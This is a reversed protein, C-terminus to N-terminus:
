LEVQMGLEVVRDPPIKFFSTARLANRSMLVFLRERWIAMGPRKTALLTETGLFYTTDEPEVPRGALSIQSLAVPIDPEEMFGYSVTVRFFAHQLLEVQLQDESSVHPVESTVVTLLIVREHLVKNHELNHLLTPPVGQRNSTMFVATGAVRHPPRAALENLFTDLPYLRALIRSALLSRGKKWTSLAAYLLAGVALPFWGGQAIKIVNAGFFGFEIVLFFMALSGAIWPNVGWSSRAVLYALMTTIIMTSTVAIGYAAAIASSSGFAVVLGITAFMLAWNVQPIYIQGREKVSTHEIDLRPCYGLQVAQRTLSFVGSILAQSAIVAAMTALAVLPYLAWSPAMLYFPSSAAEPHELLLAGQGLYNLLLAPFVLTFWALRIPRRGFHGMDAYLAEGGTVVLFVSGLVVFGHWGNRILFNLGFAPNFATLVSPNSLIWSIGMTALATFWCIMIPGFMAGVKHTGRSQILFLAVLIVVTVPVVYPEFIHTAVTLGEVAGLVSIAPTIMGDGYLLAAGFLGLAILSARSRGTDGPQESVLALLALIGGEGDNDARMVFVLYKISIILTLSWFILSLVGLINEPTAPVAHPGHFCERLAYLPSTGIDGYVVGLAGLTLLALYRGRPQPTRHRARTSVPALHKM